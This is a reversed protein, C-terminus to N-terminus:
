INENVRRLKVLGSLTMEPGAVPEAVARQRCHIAGIPLRRPRLDCIEVVADALLLSVVGPTRPTETADSDRKMSLSRRTKECSIAIMPM